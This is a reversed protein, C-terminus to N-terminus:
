KGYLCILGFMLTLFVIAFLDWADGLFCCITILAKNKHKAKKADGIADKFCAVMLSLVLGNSILLVVGLIHKM